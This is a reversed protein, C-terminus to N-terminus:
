QTILSDSRRHALSLSEGGVPYESKQKQLFTLPTINPLTQQMKIFRFVFSGKKRVAPPFNTHLQINTSNNLIKIAANPLKTANYKITQRRLAM